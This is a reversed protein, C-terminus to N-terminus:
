RADPDQDVQQRYDAIAQQWEDFLPDNEYVGNAAIWPKQQNQRLTVDVWITEGTAPPPTELLLKLQSVAAERTPGHASLGFASAHYGNGAVPELVIPVQM